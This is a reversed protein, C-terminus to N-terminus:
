KRSIKKNEIKLIVPPNEIKIPLQINDQTVEFNGTNELCVGKESNNCNDKFNGSTLFTPNNCICICNKWNEKSCSNPIENEYPWSLLSWGGPNFLIAETNGSDLQNKLYTLSAEAQQLEKNESNSFYLSYLFYVLFGVVILSVVIKLTEEALLFGKEGM